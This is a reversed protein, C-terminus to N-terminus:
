LFRIFYPSVPHFNTFTPSFPHFKTFFLSFLYPPEFGDKGSLSASLLLDKSFKCAITCCIFKAGCVDWSISQILRPASQILIIIEFNTSKNTKNLFRKDGSNGLRQPIVCAQTLFLCVIQNLMVIMHRRHSKWNLPLPLLVFLNLGVCIFSISLCTRPFRLQCLFLYMVMYCQDSM